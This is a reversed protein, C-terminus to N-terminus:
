KLRLSALSAIGFSASDLFARKFGSIARKGACQDNQEVSPSKEVENENM